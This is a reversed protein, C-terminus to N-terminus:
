LHNGEYGIVKKIRVVFYHRFRFFLTRIRLIIYKKQYILRLDTNKKLLYLLRHEDVWSNFEDYLAFREQRNKGCQKDKLLLTYLNLLITDTEVDRKILYLSDEVENLVDYIHSIKDMRQQYKGDGTRVEYNYILDPVFRIEKCCSMVRLNFDLDEFSIMNPKFCINNKVLIDRKIIRSWISTLANTNYLDILRNTWENRQIRGILAPSLLTRSLIKDNHYLNYNLGYVIMEDRSDDVSELLKAMLEPTISDDSDIFIVFDGRAIDLGTNRAISVGENKKHVINFKVLATDANERAIKDCLEPTGDTSGDNVIVIECANSQLEVCRVISQVCNSLYQACNYAPIIFSYKIM